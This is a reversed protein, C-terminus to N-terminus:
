RLNVCRETEFAGELAGQAFGVNLEGVVPDERDGVSEITLTGSQARMPDFGGDSAVIGWVGLDGGSEASHTGAVIEDDFAFQVANFSLDEAGEPRQDDKYSKAVWALDLCDIEADAIFIYSGGHFVTQPEGFSTAGISGTVDSWAGGCGALATTALAVIWRM